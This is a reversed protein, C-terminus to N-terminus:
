FDSESGLFELEQLKHNLMGLTNEGAVLNKVLYPTILMIWCCARHVIVDQSQPLLEFLQRSTRHVEQRNMADAVFECGARFVIDRSAGIQFLIWSEIALMAPDRGCAASTGEFRSM